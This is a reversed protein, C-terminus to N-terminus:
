QYLMMLKNNLITDTNFRGELTTSITKTGPKQIGRSTM